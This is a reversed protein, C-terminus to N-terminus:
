CVPPLCAVNMQVFALFWTVAKRYARRTNPNRVDAHFFEDVAFTATTGSNEILRACALVDNAAARKQSNVSCHRAGAPLPMRNNPTEFTKNGM